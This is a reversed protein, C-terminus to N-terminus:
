QEPVPPQIPLGTAAANGAGAGIFQMQGSPVILLPMGQHSGQRPGVHYAVVIQGVIKDNYWTKIEINYLGRLRVPLSVMTQSPWLKCQRRQM